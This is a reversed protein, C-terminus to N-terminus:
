PRVEDGQAAAAARCLRGRAERPARAGGRVRRAAPGRLVVDTGPRPAFTHTAPGGPGWGALGPTRLGTHRVRTRGRELTAGDSPQAHHAEM